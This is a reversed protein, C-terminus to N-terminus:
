RSLRGHVRAYTEELTEPLVKTGGVVPMFNTDGSWRPVVHMHLHDPLGAGAVLGINMGINFGQPQMEERLAEIIEAVLGMIEDREEISLESLEGVHRKPAAMVHGTNYPYKNLVAFAADGRKVILVAADDESELSRCLFCNDGTHDGPNTVYEMRSRFLREM